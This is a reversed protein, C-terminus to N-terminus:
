RGDRWVVKGDACKDGWMLRKHYMKRQERFEKVFTDVARSTDADHEVEPPKVFESALRESSVDIDTTAHRLRMLLFSPAYRQYVERQERDVDAWRRKLEQAHDFAAQTEARLRNLDDQMALGARALEEDHTSIDVVDKTAQHAAPLSNVLAALYAPDAIAEKVDEELLHSLEPFAQTLPTNM